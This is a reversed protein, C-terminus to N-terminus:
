GAGARDSVGAEEFTAMESHIRAAAEVIPMALVAGTGEGLRLDLDVLPDLGLHALVTRHGPETSRHAAILYPRAEPALAVAVLAAAGSIFGDLLVPIRHAAAGLILGAIGGIELGGVKALVDVPDAPDPRLTEIAKEIVRAKQAVGAPLLGTGPGTVKAAVEGCLVATIASAATTNAIGMDGTALLDIGAGKEEMVIAIGVELARLAEDRSMAAEHLFNRTGRAVKRSRIEPALPMDTNVGIDVVVLRAGTARALVNIAAGGRAFNAVMQATVEPPYASVAEAAVGHDAAMVIAAKYRIRPRPDGMIGALQIALSELRGLSGPPKTLRDQRKRAEAMAGADLPGIGPTFAESKVM